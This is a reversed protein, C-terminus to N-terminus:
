HQFPQRQNLMRAPIYGQHAATRMCPSGSLHVRSPSPSRSDGAPPDKDKWATFHADTRDQGRPPQSPQSSSGLVTWLLHFPTVSDPSKLVLLTPWHPLLAELPLFLLHPTPPSFSCVSSSPRVVSLRLSLRHSPSCPLTCPPPPSPGPPLFLAPMPAMAPLKAAAQPLPSQFFTM